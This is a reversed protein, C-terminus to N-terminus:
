LLEKIRIETTLQAYHHSISKLTEIKLIREDPTNNIDRQIFIGDKLNNNVLMQTATIDIMDNMTYDLYTTKQNYRLSLEAVDGIQSNFYREKIDELATPSEHFYRAIMGFRIVEKKPIIYGILAIVKMNFDKIAEDNSQIHSMQQFHLDIRSRAINCMYDGSISKLMVMPVDLPLEQPIDMSTPMADFINMLSDDLDKFEKDPRNVIDKFFLAFQLSMLNTAGSNM